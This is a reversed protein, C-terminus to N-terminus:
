KSRNSTKVVWREAEHERKEECIREIEGGKEVKKGRWVVGRECVGLSDLLSIEGRSLLVWSVRSM